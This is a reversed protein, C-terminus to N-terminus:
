VLLLIKLNLFNHNEFLFTSILMKGGIEEFIEFKKIFKKQAANPLFISNKYNDPVYELGRQGM